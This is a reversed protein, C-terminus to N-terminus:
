LSNHPDRDESSSRWRADGLSFPILRFWGRRRILGARGPDGHFPAFQPQAQEGPVSAM